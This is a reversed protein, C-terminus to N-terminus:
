FPLNQVELVELNSKVCFRLSLFITFIGCQPGLVLYGGIHLSQWKRIRWKRPNVTCESGGFILFKGFDTILVKNDLM